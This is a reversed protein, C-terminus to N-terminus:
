KDGKKKPKSETEPAEEVTGGILNGDKDKKITITKSGAPKADINLTLNIPQAPEAKPEPKEAKEHKAEADAKAKTEAEKVKDAADRQELKKVLGDVISQMRDQLAQIQRESAASIEAVRVQADASIRAANDRSDADAKIQMTKNAAELQAKALQQSLRDIQEAAQSQVQQIQQQIEASVGEGQGAQSEIQMAKANLERVRARQEELALMASERQAQMAEAQAAMQQEAQAAEEPTLEKNPDVEGTLQRISDAIQDKNPLDSFEFAMRLVRLSVDPPLKAAIQNLSDFMVQRLTGSYDAESVVFDAQSSTIDNIFRVTGDPQLEPQNVKVWEIAGKAGTLRIVKDETVFQEALSLQKEGSVQVALRHNDFPETTGVAGQNQRAEIAAGSVANTQRGLNENNIGATKQISQAALTMMQIQGTAADTDRRLLFEKGVAKVIMGDPRDAEDRAQNWDDVAGKDAIIQNTNLMFLAKSARKNLDQQIDRVRRIMGYPLRDRSRRYCWIPTLSFRNHRYISPGSAIMHAETFVAVHVRMMVKDIITSQNAAVVQAMANDSPNFVAGKMPGDAVIKCTCPKRYQCEILKVRRRQADIMAGAGASYITGTRENRNLAEGIYWQDEETEYWPNRGADEVGQRIQAARDPFMAVAIDEDVWRWRFVYRADSLDLEYGMSDWLVNRWDEYRSYIPETTPDDRVGDDVWGVGVKVADAFARSRAFPVRNVDSIYKLVKTKIDANQVDDEARPLVKWDVRTRRETGIMWDVMPAVENYVLPMQGRDKLTQADDPDWQVNDYFDADTAMEFRNEAQRERELFFWQLLKRHENCTEESDLKHSKGSPVVATKEALYEDLATSYQDGPAKGRIPRIEDM